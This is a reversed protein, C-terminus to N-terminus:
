TFLLPISTDYVDRKIVSMTKNSGKRQTFQLPSTIFSILFAGIILIKVKFKSPWSNSEGYANHHAGTGWEATHM